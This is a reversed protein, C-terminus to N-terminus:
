SGGLRALVDSARSKREEISALREREREVVEAPARSLFREDSLRMALREKNRDIDAIENRLRQKEKDLDVLGGLPITIVGKSLVLSVSDSSAAGNSQAGFRLTEVRALMKIADTEAEVVAGDEPLDLVAEIRQHQQIRFEARLNRISRVTEMVLSIDDEAEYDYFGADATPYDAIILADPADPDAPVREKLTQWIEETVFPMFPHLMRLVRELVFALYPLPSESNDDDSRLRIKAMEIYWDAYENWFFDHITRQAEGFQFNQMFREVQAAVRNLRSMIWRDQRHRPPMPSHWDDLADGAYELNGMVFRAANWLKNAFNRSSELKQENLRQDNGPSNGITLAFRLADAGYMDILQLPDLVNGRTKSMKAGEPDLVLGHLYITHFPPTGMNEIGMMMMRAVWFFIIDYGTEMVSTPYFYDIDETDCPWGLTSHPWLGSSFWTDLVDDDQSLAASDCAGCETPDEVEVVVERCDDCYWVPIRHGWWLQRSICWDRINDMWNFYVKEFREPIIRTDGNAVADRAPKALPEMRVYWQNTIIPEVVNDCRDCHGVSHRYPEVGELLGEEELQVVINKRADAMDQGAYPGANENLTGDLNMVSVSPLGNRQGIEFDTPDHGPTVKLAGTGFGLEVADDGIVPLKRGLVPLVASKGVYGTYREDDPNVAVATDGLLTEPRTTAVVLAGSGDDIEYRIHYLNGNEEQYKVELDSLATRCRPCWNTIREGRYILGKKYLNVFTTRVANSPGEDLTFAARTWDCSAGIRKTQEYIRSGYRDVWQWVSENFGDRGLEHRTVGEGALMREVVVQTAIGAHDSGPLYLSPEGKMRHWRVMLDELAITLAHGMHLEGTVNPPPMIVTFPERDRDIEPTFYGGDSWFDYIRREVSQPEYARPIESLTKSQTM